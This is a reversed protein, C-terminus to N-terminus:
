RTPQAAASILHVAKRKSESKKSYISSFAEEPVSELGTLLFGGHLIFLLKAQVYYDFFDTGFYVRGGPKLCAHIIALNERSLFRRKRHKTKPWPDPFYIHFADVSGPPIGRIFEEANGTVVSVNSLGRKRVKEETKLCRRKKIEVGILLTSSHREAYRSLFHGNGCGIEVEVSGFDGHRGRLEPFTVSRNERREEQRLQGHHAEGQVPFGFAEPHGGGRPRSSNGRLFVQRVGERDRARRPWPEPHHHFVSGPGQPIRSPQPRHQRLAPHIEPRPRSGSRPCARATQGGSRSWRAARRSGAAPRATRERQRPKAAEQPAAPAAPLPLASKLLYAALYTRMFLPVEKRIVARVRTLEELDEEEKISRIIRELSGRVTEVEGPNNEKKMDVGSEQFKSIERVQSREVLAIVAGEGGKFADPKAPPLDFFIRNVAHLEDLEPPVPMQIFLVQIERHLFSAILKRRVAPSIGPRLAAARIWCTSARKVLVNADTRASHLVLASSVKRALLIRFLLSGKDEDGVEFYASEGSAVVGVSTESHIEAPRHLLELLGIGPAPHGFLVTQKNSPLKASVFQVDRAFEAAREPDAPSEIVLVNLRAFEMSGRRIHDIVREVTGLVIPPVAELRRQERRLDETEGLTLMQPADRVGRSLRVYERSFEKIRGADQILILAALGMRQARMGLILPALVGAVWGDLPDADSVVDRGSFLLSGLNEQLPTLTDIGASRFLEKIEAASPKRPSMM